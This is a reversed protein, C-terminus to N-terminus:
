YGAESGLGPPTTAAGRERTLVLSRLFDILRGRDAEALALYAARSAEAEGGHWRIAEDLTDARGDHLYPGTSGAGWLRTTLFSAAPVEFIVAPKAGGVVSALPSDRLEENRYDALGSGMDHRRLDSFLPVLVPGAPSVRRLGPSEAEAPLDLWPGQGLLYPDELQARPDDLRLLPTHCGDCRARLFADFGGAAGANVPSWSPVALLLQYATLASLRGPSIEDRVGDGDGDFIAPDAPWAHESPEIGMHEVLASRNQARVAAYIGKAMFPRVILDEGQVAGGSYTRTGDPEVRLRGFSLGKAFLEREIASGSRTAETRAADAQTRLEASLERGLAEVYGAGFLHPPNREFHRGTMPDVLRTINSSRSGGGDRLPRDHCELCTQAEPGTSRNVRCGDPGALGAGEACTFERAFLVLGIDFLLRAGYVGSRVDEQAISASLATPDADRGGGACGASALAGGVLLGLGSRIARAASRM